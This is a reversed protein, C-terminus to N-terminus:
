CSCQYDYPVHCMDGDTSYTGDDIITKNLEYDEDIYM